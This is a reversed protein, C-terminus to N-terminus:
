VPRGIYSLYRGGLSKDSRDKEAEWKMVVGTGEMIYALSDRENAFVWCSESLLHRWVDPRQLAARLWTASVKKLTIYNLAYLVDQPDALWGDLENLDSFESEDLYGM